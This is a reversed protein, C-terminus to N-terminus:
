VTVSRHDAAMVSKVRAALAPIDDLLALPAFHNRGGTYDRRGACSRILIGTDAGTAPQSVQVYVAEHHLTIEGSVAIGGANNRLDYSGPCFGLQDALQRLRTRAKTHFRRKQADAYACPAYWDM